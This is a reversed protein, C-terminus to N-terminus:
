ACLCTTGRWDCAVTVISDPEFASLFRPRDEPKVVFLLFGGAGAGCLKGGVAGNALGHAYLNDINENSVMPSFTRKLMWGAHLLRGFAEVMDDGGAEILRLGREVLEYTASLEESIRGEVTQELQAAITQPASRVQGTFVLFMSETLRELTAQPALVPRQTIRKNHFEFCNWGGFAAFLQDQVGSAHHLVEREIRIAEIALEYQTRQKGKFLSLLNLLGVMFTASSGLGTQSPLSALANLDIPDYFDLAQLAAKIAPHEIDDISSVRETRSYSIQFEHKVFRPRRLATLHVYQTIAVGLVAGPKSEFYEPYDTGGGFFSVRLPTRVSLYTCSGSPASALEASHERSWQKEVM